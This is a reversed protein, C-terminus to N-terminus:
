RGRGTLFQRSIASTFRGMVWVSSLDVVTFLETSPDVNLGPNANRNTVVGLTM